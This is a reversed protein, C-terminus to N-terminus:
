SAFAVVFGTASFFIGYRRAQIAPIGIIVPRSGGFYIASYHRFGV